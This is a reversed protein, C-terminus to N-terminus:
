IKNVGEKRPVRLFIRTGKGPTSDIRIEGGIEGVRERMINLGFGHAPEKEYKNVDFGRGDDEIVALIESGVAKVEISVRKAQAHKRINNLAEKAINSMHMKVYPELGEILPEDSILLKVAIGTQRIYQEIEKKVAFVFNKQSAATIKVNQIYERMEGHASQAVEVLREVKQSASEIKDEALEHAIAQAQVNIFGFIQGLNDHLDRALREREESMALARQQELLRAQVQKRETVDRFIITLGNHNGRRDRLSLYSVEFTKPCGEHQMVLERPLTKGTCCIEAFAPQSKFFAEAEQGIARISSSGFIAKATRNMDAIRNQADLVVLGDDMNEIINERAVPVIDFLRYRFIGWTMILGGISIFAPALDYKLPSLKLSFLVSIIVPLLLGGWLALAQMRYLRQKGSKVHIICSIIVLLYCYAVLLWFWLGYIQGIVPFPGGYIDRHMLGHRDNTWVLIVTIVPIVLLLIIRRRTLWWEKGTYQLTLVLWTLPSFIYCSFQVNSWFIKTPLDLGMIEMANATVWIVAELMLFLFPIAGRVSRRWWAFFCLGLAILASIFLFWVYPIMQYQM